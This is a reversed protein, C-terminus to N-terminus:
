REVRGTRITAQADRIESWADTVRDFVDPALHSYIQTTSISAHGLIRQVDYLPVGAQVLWSACTHRCAHPSYSPVNARKVAPWWVHTRWNGGDLHGGRAGVFALGGAPRGQAVRSLAEIVHQPAPVERRSPVKRSKSGSKPYSKWGNPTLTGIVKIRRRLWDVESTHLGAAEGWRLGCWLMLEVMTRHPEALEALLVDAQDRTFWRPLQPPYAPLGIKRCPDASLIGEDIAAAIMAHFVAYTRHVAAVGVGDDGLRKIWAQVELRGVARLPIPGWGDIIRRHCARDARQTAPEVVRAASWRAHWDAVSTRRVVPDVWEGLRLLREQELGWSRAESKLGSTWSRRRGDPLRITAQWKGTDLRRVYAM